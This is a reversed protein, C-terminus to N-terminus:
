FPPREGAAQGAAQWEGFVDADAVWVSDCVRDNCMLAAWHRQRKENFRAVRHRGHPCGDPSTMNEERQSRTTRRPADLVRRRALSQM